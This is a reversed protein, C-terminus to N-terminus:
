FHTRWLCTQLSLHAALYLPIHHIHNKKDIHLPNASMVVRHEPHYKQAYAMLSKSMKEYLYIDLNSMKEYSYIFRDYTLSCSYVDSRYSFEISEGRDDM